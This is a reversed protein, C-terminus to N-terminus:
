RRLNIGMHEILPHFGHHPIQVREAAAVSVRTRETCRNKRPRFRRRHCHRRSSGLRALSTGRRRRKDAATDGDGAPTLPAPRASHFIKRRSGTAHLGQALLLRDIRPHRGFNDTSHLCGAKVALGGRSGLLKRAAANAFLVRAAGDVLMVSRQLHELREPATDHDLDHTRLERHIQVARTVHPLAAKFALMQETTIHDNKTTNAVCLLSSVQDRAFLNAAVFALGFDAPRFWENFVPTGTFEKRSMISDFSFVTGAPQQAAIHWLPNHFAWYNKYRAHMVPDTRPAISDFTQARCDMSALAVQATKTIDALRILAAPWRASNVAAEYILDIFALLDDDIGM